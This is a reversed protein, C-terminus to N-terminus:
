STRAYCSDVRSARYAVVVAVVDCTGPGELCRAAFYPHGPGPIQARRQDRRHQPEGDQSYRGAPLDMRSSLWVPNIGFSLQVCCHASLSDCTKSNTARHLAAIAWPSVSSSPTAPEAERSSVKM